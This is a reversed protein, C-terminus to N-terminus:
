QQAKELEEFLYKTYLAGKLSDPTESIFTPKYGVERIVEVLPLIDPGWKGDLPRHAKEGAKTFIIGSVHFHMNKTFKEGLRGEFVELIDLYDKKTAIGGQRRAYMHAWDITPICGEVNECIRIIEDVSGFAKLKGAIEPALLAGNGHHGATSWVEQLSDLILQYAENPDRGSYGGAHFVIRKVGMLPAFKLAKILRNRSRERVDDKKSALSIYYPAHMSMTINASKAAKGISIAKKEGMRLGYVAAYELADLEVDSLIQFVRKVSNKAEAPYGAPGFKLDALVDNRWPSSGHVIIIRQIPTRHAHYVVHKSEQTM